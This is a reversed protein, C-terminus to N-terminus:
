VQLAAPVLLAREVPSDDTVEPVEEADAPRHHPLLDIVSVVLIRDLRLYSGM